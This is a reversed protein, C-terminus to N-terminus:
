GGAYVSQKYYNNKDIEIGYTELDIVGIKNDFGQEHPLEELTPVKFDQVFNKFTINLEIPQIINLLEKSNEIIKFKKNRNILNFGDWTFKIEYVHREVIRFNNFYSLKKLNAKRRDINTTSDELEDFM